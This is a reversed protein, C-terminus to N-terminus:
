SPSQRSAPRYAPTIFRQPVRVYLTGGVPQAFDKQWNDHFCEHFRMNIKLRQLAEMTVWESRFVVKKPFSWVRNFPIAQDLAIGAM